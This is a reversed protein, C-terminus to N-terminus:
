TGSKFPVFVVNKDGVKAGNEAPPEKQPTQLGNLSQENRRELHDALQVSAPFVAQQRDRSM